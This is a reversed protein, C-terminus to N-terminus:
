SCRAGDRQRLLTGEAGAAGDRAASLHLAVAGAGCMVQPAGNRLTLNWDPGAPTINQITMLHGTVFDTVLIQDGPAFLSADEVVM